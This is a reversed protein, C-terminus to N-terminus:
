LCTPHDSVLLPAREAHVLCRRGPAHARYGGRDLEADPDPEDRSAGMVAVSEGDELVGEEIWLWRREAIAAATCLAQEELVRRLAGPLESWLYTEGHDFRTSITAGSPAVRLRGTEDEVFFPERQRLTGMYTWGSERSEHVRLEYYACPRGSALARVAEGGRRVRGVVKGEGHRYGDSTVRPAARLAADVRATRGGSESPRTEPPRSARGLIPRGDVRGCLALLRAVSEEGAPSNGYILVSGMLAPAVILSLSSWVDGSAATLAAVIIVLAVVFLAFVLGLRRRVRAGTIRTCGDDEVLEVVLQGVFAHTLRVRARGGESTQVLRAHGRILADPHARLHANVAAEIDAVYRALEPKFPRERHAVPIFM